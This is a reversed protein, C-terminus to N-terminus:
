SKPNGFNKLELDRIREELRWVKAYLAQINFDETQSEKFEEFQIQDNRGYTFETAKTV